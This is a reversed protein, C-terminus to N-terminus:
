ALSRIRFHEGGKRAKGREEDYREVIRRQDLPPLDLKLWNERTWPCGYPTTPDPQSNSLLCFYSMVNDYKKQGDGGFIAVLRDAKSKLQGRKFDAFGEGKYAKAEVCIIHYAGDKEFAVLLDIDEQNGQILKHNKGGIKEGPNRFVNDDYEGAHFLVLSAALWDLHYDMAVFTDSPIEIGQEKLGVKKGIKQRFADSLEFKPKDLAQAILFFREKRNFSELIDILDEM